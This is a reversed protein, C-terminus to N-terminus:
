LRTLNLCFCSKALNLGLFLHLILFRRPKPQLLFQVRCDSQFVMDRKWTRQEQWFRQHTVYKPQFANISYTDTTQLFLLIDVNIGPLQGTSCCSKFTLWRFWVFVSNRDWLYKSIMAVGCYRLLVLQNKCSKPFSMSNREYNIASDFLIWVKRAAQCIFGAPGVALHQGGRVVTPSLKLYVLSSHPTLYHNRRCPISFSFFCLRTRDDTRNHISM